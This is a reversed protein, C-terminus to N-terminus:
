ECARLAPASRAPAGDNWLGKVIGNPLRHHQLTRQGLPNGTVARVGPASLVGIFRSCAACAVAASMM